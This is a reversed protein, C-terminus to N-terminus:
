KGRLYGALKEDVEEDKLGSVTMKASTVFKSGRYQGLSLKLEVMLNKSRLDGLLQKQLWIAAKDSQENKQKKAKERIDFFVQKFLTSPRQKAIREAITNENVGKM